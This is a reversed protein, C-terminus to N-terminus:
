SFHIFHSQNSLLARYRITSSRYWRLCVALVHDDVIYLLFPITQIEQASSDSGVFIPQFAFPVTESKLLKISPCTSARGM